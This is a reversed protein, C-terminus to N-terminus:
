KYPSWNINLLLWKCFPKYVVALYLIEVPEIILCIILKQWYGIVPVWNFSIMLVFVFHINPIGPDPFVCLITLM